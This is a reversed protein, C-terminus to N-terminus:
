VSSCVLYMERILAINELPLEMSAEDWLKSFRLHRIIMNPGSVVACRWLGHRLLDSRDQCSSWFILHNCRKCSITYAAFPFNFIKWTQQFTFAWQSQSLMTKIKKKSSAANAKQITYSFALTRKFVAASPLLQNLISNMCPERFPGPLNLNSQLCNIVNERATYNMTSARWTHMETYKPSRRAHVGRACAHVHAHPQTQAQM